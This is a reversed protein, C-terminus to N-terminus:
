RNRILIKHKHTSFHTRKLVVSHVSMQSHQIRSFLARSPIFQACQSNNQWNEVLSKTLRTCYKKKPTYFRLTSKPSHWLFHFVLGRELWLPSFQKPTTKVIGINMLFLSGNMIKGFNPQHRQQERKAWRWRMFPNFTTAPMTYMIYIYEFIM